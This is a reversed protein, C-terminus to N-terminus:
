QRKERARRAAMEQRAEGAYKHVMQGDAKAAVMTTSIVVLPVGTRALRRGMHAISQSPSLPSNKQLLCSCEM